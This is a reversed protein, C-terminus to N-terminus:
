KTPSNSDSKATFYVDWHWGPGFWVMDDAGKIWEDMYSWVCNGSVVSMRLGKGSSRSSQGSSDTFHDYPLWAASTGHCRIVCLQWQRGWGCGERGGSCQLALTCDGSFDSLRSMQTSIAPSLPRGRSTVSSRRGDALHRGGSKWMSACRLTAVLLVISISRGDIVVVIFIIVYLFQSTPQRFTVTEFSVPRLTNM